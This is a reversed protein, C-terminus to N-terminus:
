VLKRKSNQLICKSTLLCVSQVGIREDSAFVCLSQPTWVTLSMNEKNEWDAATCDAAPWTVSRGGDSRMRARSLTTPCFIFVAALSSIQLLYVRLWASDPRCNQRRKELIKNQHWRDNWRFVAAWLLSCTHGKLPPAALCPCCGHSWGRQLYTQISPNSPLISPHHLSIRRIADTNTSFKMPSQPPM